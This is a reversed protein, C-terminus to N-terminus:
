SCDALLDVVCTAVGLQWGQGADLALLLCICCLLLNSHLWSQRRVNQSQLIANILEKRIDFHAASM